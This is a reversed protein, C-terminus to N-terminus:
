RGHIVRQKWTQTVMERQGKVRLHTLLEASVLGLNGVGDRQEGGSGRCAAGKYILEEQLIRVM